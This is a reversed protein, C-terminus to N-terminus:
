AEEEGIGVWRNGVFIVELNRSISTQIEYLIM